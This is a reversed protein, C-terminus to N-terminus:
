SRSQPLIARAEDPLKTIGEASLPVSASLDSSFHVDGVGSPLDGRIAPVGMVDFIQISSQALADDFRADLSPLFADGLTTAVTEQLKLILNQRGSLRTEIISLLEALSMGGGSSEVFLSIVLGTTDPPPNCQAWSLHHIRARQSTAKVDARVLGVSFDFRDTDAGRWAAMAASADRSRSIVFLEGMLGTLSRSPARSLQRFLDVLRQVVSVINETPPEPGLIQLISECVHLFYARTQEDPATCVIVSLTEVRSDAGVPQIYCRMSFSAEIGALRIPPQRSESSSGLLLCVYGRRDYGVYHRPAWPVARVRFYDRAIDDPASPISRILQDLSEQTREAQSTSPM